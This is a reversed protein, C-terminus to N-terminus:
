VIVLLNDDKPDPALNPTGWDAYFGPWHWKKVFRLGKYQASGYVGRKYGDKELVNALRNTDGYPHVYLKRTPVCVSRATIEGQENELYAVAFDGSGYLNAKTGGAFCSGLKPKYVAQIEDPTWALKYARKEFQLSHDISHKRIQECTLVDGFFKQLYKGPLTTVQIDAEGKVANPTYAIRSHDKVALHAFHDKIEKWWPEKTWILPKYEGNEFRKRERDRWDNKLVFSKIPRPQFKGGFQETLRKAYDAAEKATALVVVGQTVDDVHPEFRRGAVHRMVQYQM